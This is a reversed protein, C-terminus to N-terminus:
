MPHYCSIKDGFELTTGGKITLKDLRSSDNHAISPLNVTQATMAGTLRSTSTIELNNGKILGDTAYINVGATIHNSTTISANQIATSEIWLTPNSPSYSGLSLNNQIKCGQDIDFHQMM